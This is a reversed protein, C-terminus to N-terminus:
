RTPVKQPPRVWLRHGAWLGLVAACGMTVAAVAQPGLWAILYYGWASRLRLALGADAFGERTVWRRVVVAAVGPVCFAPLQLLPNLASLGFFLHETLLWLWTGAFSLVLFM